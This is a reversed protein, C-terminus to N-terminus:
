RDTDRRKELRQHVIFDIMMVTRGAPSLHNLQREFGREDGIYKRITRNMGHQSRLDGSQYQLEM